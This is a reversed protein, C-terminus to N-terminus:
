RTKIATVVPRHDSAMPEAIVSCSDVQWGFGEAVLIYDIRIQPEEAPFTPEGDAACADQYGNQLFRQLVASEPLANLDGAVITPADSGQLHTILADAQRERVEAFGHDFHTGAVRVRGVEPVEIEALTAIRQERDYPSPLEVRQHALIPHRSLIAQGYSGGQLPIAEAFAYEMQLGKALEAAQDVDGSRRVLRDVEQLVVIDANQREIVRAIRDLDLQGDEGLGHHINYTMVRLAQPEPQEAASSM